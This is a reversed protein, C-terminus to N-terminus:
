IDVCGANEAASLLTLPIVRYLLEVGAWVGLNNVALLGVRRSFCGYVVLLLLTDCFLHPHGVRGTEQIECEVLEATVSRHRGM